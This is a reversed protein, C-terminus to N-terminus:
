RESLVKVSAGARWLERGNRDLLVVTPAGTIPDFAPKFTGITNNRDDVLAFSQAKIEKPPQTQALVSVPMVYHSLVGGLLGIVLVSTVTLIRKM